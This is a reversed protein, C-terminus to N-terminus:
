KNIFKNYKDIQKDSLDTELLAEFLKKQEKSLKKPTVINIIVYFDGYVNYNVDKIGKGKFRHKDLNSTGSPINLTVVSDLLKIDKKTGLTAEAITIPLELYVDNGDRHYFEHDSVNFEIYLDGNEGGTSSASGMKSLRVRNGTNVGEPVKVELTKVVKVMGKGKCKSCTKTYTVGEGGCDHCTTRSVFSGFMTAQQTTISGSGHCTDCTHEGFGGKGSCEDCKDMTTIEIEKTTGLAAEMFSIDMVLLTDAGRSKRKGRRSTFGFPDYDSFASGGMGYGFLDKLIEEWNIDGFDFGSFGGAGGMGNNDFAAHGFQDYQKRRKEDSLVAYAEQAEKFKEEADPEKSVDPHYKKALRRFALKIDNESANKDVGLVEYYDKKAM